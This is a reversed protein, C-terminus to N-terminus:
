KRAECFSDAETFGRKWRRPAYSVTRLAGGNSAVELLELRCSKQTARMRAQYSKGREPMFSATVSCSEAVFERGRIAVSLDIALTFAVERDSSVTTKRTEGPQLLPILSQRGTCEQSNSYIHASMVRSTENQFNIPVANTGEIGRYGACATVASVILALTANKINPKM